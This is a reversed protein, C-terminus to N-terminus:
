LWPCSLGGGFSAYSSKGTGPGGKLIYIHEMGSLGSEYYSYFGRSSNNGPFVTKAKGKM